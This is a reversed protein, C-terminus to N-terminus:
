ISLCFSTLFLFPPLTLTLIAVTSLLKLITGGADINDAADRWRCVKLESTSVSCKNSYLILITSDDYIEVMRKGDAVGLADFSFRFSRAVFESHRTLIEVVLACDDGMSLIILM